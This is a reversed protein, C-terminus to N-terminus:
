ESEFEADLSSAAKASGQDTVAYGGRPDQALFANKEFFRTFEYAPMVRLVKDARMDVEIWEFMLRCIDRKQSDSALPWIQQFSELAQGTQIIQLAPKSSAMQLLRQNIEERQSRYPQPEIMGDLYLEGLRKLKDQLKQRDEQSHKQEQGSTLAQRIEKQWDPPFQFNQIIRGIQREFIEAVVLQKADPCELKRLHSVERYYRYMGKAQARLHRGCSACRLLGNLLYVREFTTASSRPKAAHTKRVLQVRDFLEKSIIPEHSGQYLIDLYKVAGYYFDLNLMTRVSEKNWPRNNRTSVGQINFLDAISSDTFAGTAYKEFADKILEAEASILEASGGRGKKYGFPLNNNQKGALVLSSKGKKTERSLNKIYWDAFIALFNFHMRGEPTSFDFQEDAFCLFTKQDELLKFYVMIDHLSRSFRDLHHCVIADVRGDYVAQLMEQFGPRKISTGSQGEDRFVQVLTWNPKKHRIFERCLREQADTSYGQAQELTSVRVYIAANRPLAAQSQDEYLGPARAKLRSAKGIPQATSQATSIKKPTEAPTNSM